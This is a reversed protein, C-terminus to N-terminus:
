DREKSEKPRFEIGEVILGHRWIGHETELLEAQVEGEDLEEGIFFEGLELEMWRDLRKRSFRGEIAHNADRAPVGRRRRGRYRDETPTVIYVINTEKENETASNEKVLKFSAKASCDLGHSEELKFVLYAAYTTQPSLMRLQMLGSIELWWVSLLHAVEDFRPTDGWSIHLARACLMYCKRGDPKSLRFSLKGGDLLLPSKCLMFYLEKKTSYTVPSVSRGIINKYDSPLFREWMTDSNAASNFAPSVAAARCAEKPSTFSLIVEDLGEGIFFEGLELEMWGDLRRQSFRGRIADRVPISGRGRYRDDTPTVIYVINTEKEIETASNEKVLKISAKASCDLGRSEELKFVLYAAYTTQPSLMRLQM